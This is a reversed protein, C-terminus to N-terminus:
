FIDVLSHSEALFPICMMWLYIFHSHSKTDEKPLPYLTLNSETAHLHMMNPPIM